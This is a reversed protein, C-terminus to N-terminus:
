SFLAAITALNNPLMAPEKSKMAEEIETQHKEHQVAAPSQHMQHSSKLVIKAITELSDTTPTSNSFPTSSNKLFKILVKLFVQLLSSSSKLLVQPLSSSSELLVRSPSQSRVCLGPRGTDEM